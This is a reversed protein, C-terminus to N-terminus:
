LQDNMVRLSLEGADVEAVEAPEVGANAAEISQWKKGHRRVKRRSARKGGQPQEDDDDGVARGGGGSRRAALFVLSFLILGLGAVIRADLGRGPAQGAGGASM